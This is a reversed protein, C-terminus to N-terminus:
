RRSLLDKADDLIKKEDDTLAGFGQSNIKDLIRDVEARLNGGTASRTIEVKFPATTPPAGAKRRRLWAPLEISFSGSARDAGHRAYVLRYFLWGAAMGGLHASHAINTQFIAGPLESFLFGITEFAVMCWALIKPRVTVPLVFFLLFTIEREPYVCAFFIFLATVGASAGMLPGGGMWFHVGLWALAGTLVAGFYFQLFRSAGLLPAVERGIFFLGLANLLLHIPGDHLLAYTVLTWIRGGALAGPKLQLAQAFANGGWAQFTWQMLAGVFTACLVWTLASASHRPFESRMYSRDSLM